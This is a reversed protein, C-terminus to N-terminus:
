DLVTGPQFQGQSSQGTWGTRVSRVLYLATNDTSHLCSPGLRPLGVTSCDGAKSAPLGERKKKTGEAERKVPRQVSVMKGGEGTPLDVSSSKICDEDFPGFPLLRVRVRVGAAARKVSRVQWRGGKERREQAMDQPGSPM